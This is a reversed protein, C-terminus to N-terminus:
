RHQRILEEAERIMAEVMRVKPNTKTRQYRYYGYVGLATLAVAGVGFLVWANNSKGRLKQRKM